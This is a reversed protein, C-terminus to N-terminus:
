GFIPDKKIDDRDENIPILTGLPNADLDDENLAYIMWHPTDFHKEQEKIMQMQTLELHRQNHLIFSLVNKFLNPAEGLNDSRTQSFSAM